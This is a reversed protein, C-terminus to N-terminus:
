EYVEATGGPEARRVVDEVDNPRLLFLGVLVRAALRRARFAVCTHLEVLPNASEHLHEEVLDAPPGQVQLGSRELDGQQGLKCATQETAVRLM